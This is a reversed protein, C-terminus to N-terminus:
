RCIRGRYDLRVTGAAYDVAGTTRLRGTAAAYIGTGRTVTLQNSIQYRPPAATPTMVGRDTTYLTDGIATVITHGASFSRAGNGTATLRDIRISASGNLDGAITGAASNAGTLLEAITGAVSGCARGAAGATREGYFHVQEGSRGTARAAHPAAALALLLLLLLPLLPVVPSKM